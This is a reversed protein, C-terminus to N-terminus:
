VAPSTTNIPASGTSSHGFQSELSELVVTKVAYALAVASALSPNASYGSQGLSSTLPSSASGAVAFIARAENTRYKVPPVLM